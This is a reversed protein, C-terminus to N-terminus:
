MVAPVPIHRYDLFRDFYALVGSRDMLCYFPLCCSCVLNFRMLSSVLVLAWPKQFTHYAPHTDDSLGTGHVEYAAGLVPSVIVAQVVVVSRYQEYLQESSSSQTDNM